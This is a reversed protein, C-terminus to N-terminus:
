NCWFVHQLWASTNHILQTSQQLILPVTYFDQVQGAFSQMGFHLVVTSISVHALQHLTVNNGPANCGHDDIRWSGRLIGSSVGLTDEPLDGSPQAPLAFGKRPNYLRWRKSGETQCVFIDVDDHHPALGQLGCDIQSTLSSVARHVDHQAPM